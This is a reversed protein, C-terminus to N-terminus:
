IETWKAEEIARNLTEYDEGYKTEIKRALCYNGISNFIWFTDCGYFNVDRMTIHVSDIVKGLCIGDKIMTGYTFKFDGEICDGKRQPSIIQSNMNYKKIIKQIKRKIPNEQEASVEMQITCNEAAKEGGIELAKSLEHM